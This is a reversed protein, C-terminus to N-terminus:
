VSLELYDFLPRTKARVFLATVEFLPEM